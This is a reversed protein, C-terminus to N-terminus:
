FNENEWRKYKNKESELSIEGDTERWMDQFYNHEPWLLIKSHFISIQTKWDETMLPLQLSILHAFQSALHPFQDKM